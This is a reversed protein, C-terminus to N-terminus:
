LKLTSMVCITANQQGIWIELNANQQGIRAIWIDLNDTFGQVTWTRSKGMLLCPWCYLRSNETSGTLWSYKDYWTANVVSSKANGDKKPIHIKPVPRGAAKIRVKASYNFTYFPKNLLFM